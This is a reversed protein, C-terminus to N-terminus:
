RQCLAASKGRKRMQFNRKAPAPWNTLNKQHGGCDVLEGTRGFVPLPFIQLVEILRLAALDVISPEDRHRSGVGILLHKPSEQRRDRDKKLLSRESLHDQSRHINDERVIIDRLGVQQEDRTFAETDDSIM